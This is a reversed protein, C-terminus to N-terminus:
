RRAGETCLIRTDLTIDIPMPMVVGTYYETSLQSRGTRLRNQAHHRFTESAVGAAALLSLCIVLREVLLGPM